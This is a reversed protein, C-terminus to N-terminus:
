SATRQQSAEPLRASPRMVRQLRARQDYDHVARRRERPGDPSQEPLQRYAPFWAASEADAPIGSVPTGAAELRTYEDPRVVVRLTHYAFRLPSFGGKFHLLSDDAGGLGGGMQVWRDGRTKAWRRVFDYILKTPQHRNDREDSGSLHTVVMGATEVFLMAAAVRDEYEVVALHVSDGLAARFADFYADDFHYYDSAGLRQM